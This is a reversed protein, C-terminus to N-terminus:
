QMHKMKKNQERKQLKLDRVSRKLQDIEDFRDKDGTQYLIKNKKRDKNVEVQLRPLNYWLLITEKGRWRRM